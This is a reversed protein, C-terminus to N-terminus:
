YGRKEKLDSLPQHRRRGQRGAVAIRREVKGEIIYDLLCNRHLINGIWNAKRRKITQMIDGELKVSHLVDERRV